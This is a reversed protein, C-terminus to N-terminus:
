KTPLRWHHHLCDIGLAKAIKFKIVLEFKSRCRSPLIATKEGYAASAVRGDIRL